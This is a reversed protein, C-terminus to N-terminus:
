LESHNIPVPGIVVSLDCFSSAISKNYLFSEMRVDCYFCAGLNGILRRYNPLTVTQNGSRYISSNATTQGDIYHPNIRRSERIPIPNGTSNSPNYQQASQILGAPIQGYSLWETRGGSPLARGDAALSNALSYFRDDARITYVWYTNASPEMVIRMIQMQRNIEEMSSSTSVFATLDQQHLGARTRGCTRGEYHWALNNNTGRPEFGHLFITGPERTDVRYLFNPQGPPQAYIPFSFKLSLALFSLLMKKM